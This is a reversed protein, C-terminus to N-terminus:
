AALAKVQASTLVTKVSLVGFGGFIQTWKLGDSYVLVSDGDAVFILDGGWGESDDKDAITVTNTADATKARISYLRGKAEAVPPLTIVIAGSDGDAAPRVVYDRTTMQYSATPDHFKDVVQKDHQAARDELAM